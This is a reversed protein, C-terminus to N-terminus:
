YKELNEYYSKIANDIKSKLHPLSKEIAMQILEFDIEEYEHSAINRTKNFAGIEDKDFIALAELDNSKQIGKILEDINVFKMMIAGQLTDEDRLAQSIGNQCNKFIADIKQSIKKLREVSTKELM